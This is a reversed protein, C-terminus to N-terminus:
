QLWRSTFVEVQSAFNPWPADAGGNLVLVFSRPIQPRVSPLLIGPGAHEPEPLAVSHFYLRGLECEQKPPVGPEWQAALGMLIRLRQQPEVYPEEDGVEGEQVADADGAAGESDAAEGGNAGDAYEDLTAQCVLQGAPTVLLATHAGSPTLLDRLLSHTTAPSILM